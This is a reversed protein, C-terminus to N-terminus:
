LEPRKIKIDAGDGSSMKLNAVEEFSAAADFDPVDALKLGVTEAMARAVEAANTTGWNLQAIAKARELETGIEPACKAAIKLM